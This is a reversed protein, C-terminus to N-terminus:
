STKGNALALAAKADSLWASLIPNGEANALEVRAVAAALAERMAGHSNVARVILDANARAGREDNTKLDEITPIMSALSRGRSDLVQWAQVERYNNFAIQWPRPTANM